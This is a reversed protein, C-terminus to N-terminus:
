HETEVTDKTLRVSYKKWVQQANVTNSGVKAIICLDLAAEALPPNSRHIQLPM